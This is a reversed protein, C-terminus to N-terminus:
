RTQLRLQWCSRWTTKGGTSKGIDPRAGLSRIRAKQLRLNAMEPVFRVRNKYCFTIKNSTEEGVAHANRTSRSELEPATKKYLIMDPSGVLAPACDRKRKKGCATTGLLCRRQQFPPLTVYPTPSTQSHPMKIRGEKSMRHWGAQDDHYDHLSYSTVCINGELSLGNLNDLTVAQPSIRPEAAM